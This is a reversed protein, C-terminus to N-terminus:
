RGAPSGDATLGVERAVDRILREMAVEADPWSFLRAREHAKQALPAIREPNAVLEAIEDIFGRVDGLPVLVGTDGLVERVVPIDYSVCAHGSAMAETFALGFGEYYTPFALINTTRLISELEERGVHGLLKVRPDDAAMREMAERDPGAGVVLFEADIEPRRGFEEVAAAIGKRFHLRGVYVIRPRMAPSKDEYVALLEDETGNHIVEVREDPLHHLRFIDDKLAQSCTVVRKARRNCIIEPLAYHV